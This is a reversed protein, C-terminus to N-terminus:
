TSTQTGRACVLARTQTGEHKAETQTGVGPVPPFTIFSGCAACTGVVAGAKSETLFGQGHERSDDTPQSSTRGAAACKAPTLDKQHWLRECVGCMRGFPNNVFDAEFTRTASASESVLIAQSLKHNLRPHSAYAADTLCEQTQLLVMEEARQEERKESQKKRYAREKVLRQERQEPTEEARMRRKTANRREFRTSTSSAEDKVEATSRQRRAAYQARRKALRVEREEGTETARQLKRKATQRAARERASM